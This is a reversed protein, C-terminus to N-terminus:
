ESCTIFEQLTFATDTCPPLFTRETFTSRAICDEKSYYNSLGKTSARRLRIGFGYERSAPSSARSVIVDENQTASPETSQEKLYMPLLAGPYGPDCLSDWLGINMVVTM